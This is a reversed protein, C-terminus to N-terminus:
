KFNEPTSSLPTVLAAIKSAVILACEKAEELTNGCSGIELLLSGESYKQNYSASRVSMRRPLSPSTDYLAKQLRCALALNRQWNPHNGRMEDSGIVSMFQATLKGNVLTVPRLKTNDASTLSDRHIDFVYQISPYIAVLERIASEAYSYADSYSKEDFMTKCHLTPIGHSNFYDAMVGGVAVVNRTIDTTRCNDNIEYSVGDTYSETGHTHIILIVPADVGYKKATEALDIKHIPYDLLSYLDLDYDTENSAELAFDARSSLDKARIPYHFEPLEANTYSYLADLDSKTIQSVPAEYTHFLDPELSSPTDKQDSTNISEPISEANPIDSFMIAALSDTIRESTLYQKIKLIEAFTSYIALAALFVLLANRFLTPIDLRSKNEDLTKNEDAYDKIPPLASETIRPSNSIDM